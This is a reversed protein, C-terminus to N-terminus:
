LVLFAIGSQLANKKFMEAKERIVFALLFYFPGVQSVVMKNNELNNPPFYFRMIAM